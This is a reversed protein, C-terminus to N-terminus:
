DWHEYVLQEYNGTIDHGGKVVSVESGSFIHGIQAVPVGCDEAISFVLHDERKSATFLIEYDDSPGLATRLPDISSAAAKLAESLPLSDADIEIGVGSTKSILALSKWLGDSTDIASHAFGALRKGFEVRVSPNLHRSIAQEALVDELKVRGRLLELGLLADGAYGTLWINDEVAASSRKLVKAGVEGGVTTNVSVADAKSMDGGIISFGHEQSVELLGRSFDQLWNSSPHPHSLAVTAYMPSGGMAAIDSLSVSLAKRGLLYAPTDKLFHIGEVLTDTSVALGLTKGVDIIAADDGVGLLVRKGVPFMFFSEIAETERM